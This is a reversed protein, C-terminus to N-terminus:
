GLALKATFLKMSTSLTTLYYKTCLKFVKDMIIQFCLNIIQSFLHDINKQSKIITVTYAKM